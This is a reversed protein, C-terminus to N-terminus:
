LYFEGIFSQGSALSVTVDWLGPNNGIFISTGGYSCNASYTEFTNCNIISVTATEGEAFLLISVMGLESDFSASVPVPSRPGGGEGNFVPTLPIPVEDGGDRLNSAFSFLSIIILCLSLLFSKKM